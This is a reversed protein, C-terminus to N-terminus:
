HLHANSRGGGTLALSVADDLTLMLGEARGSEFEPGACDYTLVECEQRHRRWGGFPAVADEDEIAAWLSGAREPQGRQGAVTALLGVGFVRGARDRLQEALALSQRARSEAEDIRGAQLSLCALEALMGSEWWPVGVERGMAASQEILTAARELEGADRAIAGLTGITQAVGFLRQWENDNREHIAQSEEVLVRARDLDGKWMALIGLRHLLVARGHEDGLREFLALSQEWLREATDSDGALSISSGYGRLAHAQLERPAAEAAPHELLTAFWRTGERPDNATWFMDMAVALRLALEISGRTFSWSLAARINDQEANAIALHQGGPALKGPNLNASRAIGLFFEAHRRKIADAESMGELQELAYGRVTELMTYRSGDANRTHQLLNHDVLTGLTVITMGCVAEAAELSCGGVFVTLSALDRQADEDLLDYSWALTARLTQQRAPLDGPGGALLPLQPELRELLEAPTLTRMHPASLEIALPLGDLRSCIEEIAIEDSATPEFRPDVERARECFLTQAAEAALPEVPYVHEGSVHLVTRSTVLLTMRPAHALLEVYTPAAARLHEANDVVLLLELSRLVARLTEVPRGSLEQIGLAGAITGAVLDPDRLPALDVFGAGNAFYESAERAAELALRTKGSGGAGTLVLMRVDDRQLLGRLEARERERGVLRNPPTPLESVTGQPSPALALGADQELIRRQLQRLEVGPELGLEDRLRRRTTAYLELAESQRGSRYLALMAQAQMRDRTGHESALSRLEPLVEAHRGLALEAENREELAVLRLEELREAEARAFEEYAIEGYARGRWLGLARRLLSAALLPNGDQLARRGDALSREFRSADLSGDQLELLYGAGLTEIRAPRPLAKRLRSIYVQLLKAATAPPSAGWLAEILADTSSTEGVRMVLAALLQRHKAASLPVPGDDGVIELPGLVRIDV